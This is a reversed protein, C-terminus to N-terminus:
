NSSMFIFLRALHVWNFFTQGLLPHKVELSFRFFENDLQQHKVIINGPTILMPLTMCFRGLRFKYKTSHFELDGDIVKLDLCMSFGFGTHEELGGQSNKAKISVITEAYGTFFYDRKWQTGIPADSHSLTSLLCMKVRM